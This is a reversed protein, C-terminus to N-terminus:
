KALRVTEFSKMAERMAPSVASGVDQTHFSVVLRNNVIVCYMVGVAAINGVYGKWTSRAAPLGALTLHEFPTQSYNSRRREVGKLFDGLYKDAAEQLVKEAPAGPLDSGGDFITVQLLTKTTADGKVWGAVRAPGRTESAAATFGAPIDLKVPGVTAPEALVRSASVVALIAVLACLTGTRRQHM